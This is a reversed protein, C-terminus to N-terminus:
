ENKKLNTLCFDMGEFFTKKNGWPKAEELSIDNQRSVFSLTTYLMLYMYCYVFKKNIAAENIKEIFHSWYSAGYIHSALEGYTALSPGRWVVPINIPILTKKNDLVFNRLNLDMIITNYEIRESSNNLISLVFDISESYVSPISKSKSIQKKMYFSLFSKWDSNTGIFNNDLKGCGSSNIKSISEIFGFFQDVIIKDTKSDSFNEALVDGEIYDYLIYDQNDSYSIVYEKLKLIKYIKEELLYDTSKDKIIKLIYKKDSELLYVSNNLSSILDIKDVKGILLEINELIKKNLCDTM